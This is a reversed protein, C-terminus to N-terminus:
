VSQGMRGGGPRSGAAPETRYLPACRCPGLATPAIGACRARAEASAWYASGRGAAVTPRKLALLRGDSSSFEIWSYEPRFGPTGCDAAQGGSAAGQDRAAAGMAFTM